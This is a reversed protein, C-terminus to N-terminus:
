RSDRLYNAVVRWTEDPKERLMFHSADPIAKLTITPGAPRSHFASKAGLILLKAQPSTQFLTALENSESWAVISKSTRYFVYDPVHLKSAYQNKFSLFDLRSVKLSEGCDLKTLNGELSILRDIKQPILKLLLTGVMGGLSHGIVTANQIGVEAMVAVVRQAQASLDYSFLASKLSEGFGLFDLSLVSYSEFQPLTFLPGFIEQNSQLGHLAVLWRPGRDRRRISIGNILKM